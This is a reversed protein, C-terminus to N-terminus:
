WTTMNNRIINLNIKWHKSKISCVLFTTENNMRKGQIHKWWCIWSRPYTPPFFYCQTACDQLTPGPDALTLSVMNNCFCHKTWWNWGTACKKNKLSLFLRFNGVWSYTMTLFFLTMNNFKNSHEWIRYWKPLLLFFVKRMFYVQLLAVKHESTAGREQMWAINSFNVKKRRYIIINWLDHRCPSVRLSEDRIWCFWDGEM